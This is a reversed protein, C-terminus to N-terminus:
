IVAGASGGLEQKEEDQVKTTMYQDLEGRMLITCRWELNFTAGFGNFIKFFTFHSIKVEGASM